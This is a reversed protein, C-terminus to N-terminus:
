RHTQPTVFPILALCRTITVVLLNLGSPLHVRPPAGALCQALPPPSQNTGRRNSFLVLALSSAVGRLPHITFDWMPQFPSRFMGQLPHVRPPTGALVNPGFPPHITLDWMLQPPSRFMDQFPHIWSDWTLQLLSRIGVLVSSGSLFHIILDWMPQPPSRFM